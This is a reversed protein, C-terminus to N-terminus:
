DAKNIPKMRKPKVVVLTTFLVQYTKIQYSAMRFPYNEFDLFIDLEVSLNCGHM